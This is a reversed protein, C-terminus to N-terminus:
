RSSRYSGSPRRRWRPSCSGTSGTLGTECRHWSGRRWRGSGSPFCRTRGCDARCWSRRSGWWSSSTRTWGSPRAWRRWWCARASGGQRPPDDALELGLTLRLATLDAVPEVAGLEALGSVVRAVTEAARAEREPLRTEDGIDGPLAGFTVTTWGALEPWSSLGAGADVRDRLGAVLGSLADADEADRELSAIRGERPEDAARERAAASRRAVAYGALRAEWDGGAVVGAARSIREWRSVPVLGGDAGRVPAGALLAVVEDRRWRHDPLALLGLLTRPLAREIVPRVATGNATIGAAGIHEALLRAYPESAGYLVAVLHAPVEALAHVLLRVVRRVEDDPDSATVVRTATVPAAVPVDGHGAGLGRVAEVVGADAREEGTRGAVVRLGAAPLERLLATASPALEQPLFLVVEGIERGRRPEGHLM